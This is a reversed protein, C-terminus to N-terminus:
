TVSCDGKRALQWDPRPELELQQRGGQGAIGPWLFVIRHRTVTPCYSKRRPKSFWLTFAEM